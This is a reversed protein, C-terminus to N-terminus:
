PQGMLARILYIIITEGEVMLGGDCFETGQPVTIEYDGEVSYVQVLESFSTCRDSDTVTVNYSGSNSVSITPTIEGTSWEYSDYGAPAVLDLSEGVCLLHESEVGLQISTYPCDSENINLAQDIAPNVVVTRHGSPWQVVLSDINTAAGIGFHTSIASRNSMTGITNVRLWHNSNGENYYIENSELVDIFGDANLDALSSAPVTTATASFTFDGRGYYIVPPNDTIIDVNGDNDFDAALAEFAGLANASIGTDGAYDSFTGDGNNVMFRNRSEHNFTIADFDGDNDYDEFLTIWSQDGDALGAIGAVETYNSQGDNNYLLNIRGIDTPGAGQVCKAMHMDLDGDNDYDVWTVTYNGPLDEPTKLLDYDLTLNGSGDNRFPHNEDEDHCIFADLHGDNNIDAFSTRQSFIYDPKAVETYASGNANAYIFSVGLIDGVALDNYGNGDIDGACISWDANYKLDMAFSRQTFSGDPQQYYIQLKKSNLAVIDDLLDGNMDVACNQDTVFPGESFISPSFSVQCVLQLSSIFFLTSLLIRM